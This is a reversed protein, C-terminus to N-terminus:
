QKARLAPERGVRAQRHAIGDHSPDLALQPQLGGLGVWALDLGAKSVREFDSAPLLGHGEPQVRGHAEGADPLILTLSQPGRGGRGM